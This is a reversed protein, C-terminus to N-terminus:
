ESMRERESEIKGLRDPWAPYTSRELFTECM